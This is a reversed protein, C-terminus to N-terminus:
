FAEEKNNPNIPHTNIINTKINNTNIAPFNEQELVMSEVAGSGYFKRNLVQVKETDAVAMKEHVIKGVYILNPRGLGQRQEKILSTAVLQSFAKTVTKESLCLKEQVEQRTFILYVNGSKDYWNNKQSLSLRDLLFGYLLKSDSNLKSKYYSNCFLEQPVQYYKHELIENIKYFDM